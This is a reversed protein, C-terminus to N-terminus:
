INKQMCFYMMLHTNLYKIAIIQYDTERKFIFSKHSKEKQFYILKPQFSPYSMDMGNIGYEQVLYAQQAECGVECKRSNRKTTATFIRLLKLFNHRNLQLIFM